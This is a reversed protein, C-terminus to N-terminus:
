CYRECWYEILESLRGTSFMFEGIIDQVDTNLRQACRTSRFANFQYVALLDSDTREINYVGNWGTLFTIHRLLPFMQVYKFDFQMSVAFEIHNLPMDGKHYCGYDDDDDNGGVGSVCHVKHFKFCELNMQKAEWISVRSNSGVLAFRRHPIFNLGVVTLAQTQGALINLIAFLQEFHLPQCFGIGVHNFDISTSTSRGQRGSLVSLAFSFDHFYITKPQPPSPHEPIAEDIGQNAQNVGDSWCIRGPHKEMLDFYAVPQTQSEITLHLNLRRQM